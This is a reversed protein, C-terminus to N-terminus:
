VKNGYRKHSPFGKEHAGRSKNEGSTPKPSEKSVFATECRASSRKLSSRSTLNGHGFLAERSSPETAPLTQEPAVFKEPSPVALTKFFQLLIQPLHSSLCPPLASSSFLESPADHQPPVLGLVGGGVGGVCGGRGRAPSHRRSHPRREVCVSSFEFHPLFSRCSLLIIDM